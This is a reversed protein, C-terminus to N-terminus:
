FQHKQEESEILDEYRQKEMELVNEVQVLKNSTTKLQEKIEKLSRQLISNTNQFSLNKNVEERLKEELDDIRTQLTDEM